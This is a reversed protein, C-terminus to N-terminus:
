ELEVYDGIYIERLSDTLLVTAANPGVRLVIGEGLVDRPLEAGSYAKPAAGFGYTMYATKPLEYVKDHHGGQYRFVRFYDGVQVGQKGGLNVYM